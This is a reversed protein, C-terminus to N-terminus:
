TDLDVIFIREALYPPQFQMAVDLEINSENVPEFFCLTTPNDFYDINFSIQLSAIIFHLLGDYSDKPCKGGRDPM